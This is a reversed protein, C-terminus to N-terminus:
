TSVFPDTRINERPRLSAICNANLLNYLYTGAELAVESEPRAGQGLISPVVVIRLSPAPPAVSDILDSLSGVALIPARGNKKHETKQCASM